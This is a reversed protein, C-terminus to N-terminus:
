ALPNEPSDAIEIFKHIEDGFVEKLKQLSILLWPDLEISKTGTLSDSNILTGDAKILVTNGTLMHQHILTAKELEVFMENALKDWHRILKQAKVIEGNEVAESLLNKGTKLRKM